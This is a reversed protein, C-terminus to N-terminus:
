TGTREWIRFTVDMKWGAPEPKLTLSDLELGPTEACGLRIWELMPGLKPDRVDTYIYRKTVIGPRTKDEAPHPTNPKTKMGARIALDEMKSAKFQDPQGAGSRPDAAEAQVLRKWQDILVDAQVANKEARVLGRRSAARSTVSYLAFVLSVALLVAAIAVMGVPRNRRARAAAGLVLEFRDDEGLKVLPRTV